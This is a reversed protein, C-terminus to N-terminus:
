ESEKFTVESMKDKIALFVGKTARGKEFNILNQNELVVVEEKGKKSVATFKMCMDKILRFDKIKFPEPLNCITVGKGKSIESLETLKYILVKNETTIIALRYESIDESVKFYLPQLLNGNETMKVMEKGAKMRTILNEGSVIFGYGNDQAMVYKFDRNIPCVLAIKSNIQSLTNIPVGDKTLENLPYNYVKGEVDFIALTDTNKCYFKYALSDGEKFSIDEVSKQGKFTKVWGKDSVALTIDEEAIKASKEQLLSLDVKQAEIIESLRDDSFKDMDSTIEKIMQKKLTKETSIIKELDLKKISLDKFEKELSALELNGLQRLKLDLVDQVQIESLSYKNILDLRPDESTKIIQIVEDIHDLIIKRGEIIHLRHAIKKIHFRCRRDITELRFISWESIIDLL